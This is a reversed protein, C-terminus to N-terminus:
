PPVWSFAASISPMLRFVSYLRSRSYWACFSGAASVTYSSGPVRTPQNAAAPDSPTVVGERASAGRRAVDRRPLGRARRRQPVVGHARALHRRRTRRRAAAPAPRVGDRPRRRDAAVLAG